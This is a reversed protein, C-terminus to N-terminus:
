VWGKGFKESVGFEKMLQRRHQKSKVYVPKSTLNEDLYPQLDKVVSYNGLVQRMEGDCCIPKKFEALKMFIEEDKKCVVCHWQYTPM